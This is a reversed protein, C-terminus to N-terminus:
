PVKGAMAFRERPRLLYRIGGWLKGRSSYLSDYSPRNSVNVQLLQTVSCWQGTYSYFPDGRRLLKCPSKRVPDSGALRHSYLVPVLLQLAEFLLSKAEGRCATQRPAIAGGVM